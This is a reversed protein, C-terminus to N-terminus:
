RDDKRRGRKGKQRRDDDTDWAAISVGFDRARRPGKRRDEHHEYRCQCSARDCKKLPLVPAERSLFRRGEMEKAASCCVPGPVVSVAHYPTSIKKVVTPRATRKPVPQAEADVYEGEEEDQQGLLSRAKGLLGSTFGPIRPM